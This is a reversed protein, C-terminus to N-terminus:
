AHRGDEESFRGPLFPEHPIPPQRDGLLAALIEGTALATTIGLGEHGAAVWLRDHLPDPGILPLKDPTTPRFGTWCRLVSLQALDPMYRLACDLMERLIRMDVTDDPADFQRSSGVLIQGTQRPQLNFAVSEATMNHASKLYGLEILQHRLFGPYGETIVLHGKRRRIPLGPSLQPAACGAANIVAGAHIENGDALRLHGGAALETVPVGIHVDIAHQENGTLLHEAAVPPYIVADDPVLLAGSLGKRLHPEAKYLEDAALCHTLVGHTAYLAHKRKVEIMEQDDAAVWLTGCAEYEMAAPATAALAQWLARSRSTLAFQTESDDMVVIHGMGAATTGSGVPRADVVRVQLGDRACAHACAAGIIGAGVVVVDATMSM